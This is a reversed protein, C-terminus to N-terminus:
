HFDHSRVGVPMVRGPTATPADPVRPDLAIARTAIVNITGFARQLKGAVAILTSDRLALRCEQFVRPPAIVNVLGDADELTIFVFGKATQPRQRCVVLGGVRVLDGDGHRELERSGIVGLARLRRRYSATFHQSLSFGLVLHDRLMQEHTSPEPLDVRAESLRLAPRAPTGARGYVEWLQQSRPRDDLSDFAGALILGEAPKGVVASRDFFDTLGRYPGGAAREAVIAAALEPGVWRVQEFGLRASPRDGELTCRAASRNVDVRLFEVGHRRADWVLVGPPYFGLPQNSLLAAAFAVPHFRKLFLGEYATRALAASHSKCFGFAAFSSIQRFAEAAVRRAIGNAEARAMFWPELKRMAEESRHAGMARRFVDAEGPACGTLAMVGLIIQEQFLFIGLTDQLIPELSPHLYTVQELGIRRRNYPHVMGSIVPGPRIIACQNILDAFGSPRTRVVSQQQARSEVQSAGITDADRLMRYIEPNELDIEHLDLPVGRQQELRVAEQIVSLARLCLLDLKGLGTEEVDEKDAGVVVIGAKRAPELGFLEILPQGTVLMGGVHISLHRPFDDIAQCVRILLPWPSTKGATDDPKASDAFAGVERVLDEGAVHHDLSKALRAVLESPMGLAKGVDRVASRARFRVYNCVMATREAGYRQYVYAIAHERDPESFDVDIDPMTPREVSIFREFLLNYAIPDAVSLGLCYVIL